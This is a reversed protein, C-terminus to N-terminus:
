TATYLDKTTVAITYKVDLPQFLAFHKAGCEIKLREVERLLQRNLSGKTEAVFYVRRDHEFIVAWDPTYNGLPTPIKFGRPLKFFFKIREDAECDRAFDSEIASEVAIYNFLTKETKSVAFLSSLYTEIEEYRFLTMEYVQGNIQEYKLGEVMLSYLTRQIASVVNDLFLQPNIELEEYRESQKLIEFITSRTIDVKSQIYAYIDPIQYRVAQSQKVSLDTLAGEIGAETYNLRATRSELMPRTTLPVKNFDRLEAVTRTILEATSFQVHYRTRHKIRDWIEFFLPCNEPTLEKSLRIKARARANKIRGGFDVSTEEQIERQLAASFDQYTENAIVTLLNLRKDQVRVGSQDVSLRLGRGIEQRKKLESQSENLTCIQFVNPNDWGERLASHSFIFQLPEDLSLLREKDRMILSYTEDDAKTSGTTDKFAGKKDQSFYGNHVQEVPFPLLDRYEPLNACRKFAEEFWLAFKGKQAHGDATYLRYHAVKDLFFLSLVKVGSPKFKKVKEFHWKVTREIQYKMVEDTLGGRTQGTRLVMGNAFEIMEEAANISNLIFGDKYIERGGSLRFLDAGADVTVTKPKVSQKDNVYIELRAKLTTKGRQVGKFRIFAANYNGDATIGDVEIQKVLGLDYAQVPNLSYVLNYLNRHTASYRLTCLPNLHHIAAKRIDTEMNQPEDVIVIPHTAQLYEIPKVGTERVTNIINADRTFSDINIVLVQIANSTAFNRLAALKRSDYMLFNIAPCGYLAQFHDHTIELNKVAGERIAVSPAVIVFKKFGYVKHLKYITRLYVYTKGTGTEMEITFNLPISQKEGTEADAYDCPELQQSLHLHNHEQVARVNRLLQSETLSLRNAVGKESLSLSAGEMGFSIEFDGGHLPQGEFIDVIAQIAALQYDQSGDFQLKM